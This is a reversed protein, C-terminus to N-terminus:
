TVATLLARQDELTYAIGLPVFHKAEAKVDPNDM